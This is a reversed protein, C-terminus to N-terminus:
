GCLYPPPLCLVVEDAEGGVAPEAGKSGTNDGSPPIKAAVGGCGAAFAPRRANREAVHCTATASRFPAFAETDQPNHRHQPEIGGKEPRVPMVLLRSAHLILGEDFSEGGIWERPRCPLVFTAKRGM